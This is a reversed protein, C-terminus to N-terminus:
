HKIVNLQRTSRLRFRKPIELTLVKRTAECPAKLLIYKLERAFGRIVIEKTAFNLKARRVEYTMSIFVMGRNNCM